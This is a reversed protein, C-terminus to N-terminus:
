PLLAPQGDLGEVCTDTLREIGLQDRVTYYARAARAREVNRGAVRHEITCHQTLDLAPEQPGHLTENGWLYRCRGDPGPVSWIWHAPGVELGPLARFIMRAPHHALGDSTRLTVQAVDLDTRELEARVGFAGTITYDADIALLWDAGTAIGAAVLASRKEVENGYWRDDPVHLTLGIGLAACTEVIVSAQGLPSRPKADPFLAYAGDFAVLHDVRIRATSTIAAALWDPREDYWPIIATVKM